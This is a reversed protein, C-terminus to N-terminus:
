PSRGIVPCKFLLSEIRMPGLRVITKMTRAAAVRMKIPAAMALKAKRSFKSAEDGVIVSRITRSPTWDVHAAAFPYGPSRPVVAVKLYLVEVIVYLPM